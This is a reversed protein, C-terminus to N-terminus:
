LIISGSVFRCNYIKGIMCIKIHATICAPIYHLMVQLDFCIGAYLVIRMEARVFKKMYLTRRKIETGRLPYVIPDIHRVLM